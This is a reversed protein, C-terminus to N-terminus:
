VSLRRRLPNVDSEAELMKTMEATCIPKSFLYGQGYDCDQSALLALQEETEVGEAVVKLGLGHAMAIAANVLERDGPDVTIDNVFERDIKLVDFPFSRLYSLSSYGTGFDDMAISIGLESLATLADDIYTHGSMLVGETIELELCQGSLGSQCLADEIFSVLNPNRFQRPSLNVSMTILRGLKRQWFAVVSLAETLVFEGISVILGTHEAIPVFEIPAVDDLVPNQWRLLAEVGVIKRSALEVKPQYYLRFEGRNLAGYMQEELHLRRSVGQNMEDTFFFYTNRGQDKSHYMASDANRLLESPSDGDGPYIAIGISATLILERQDVRFPDRFHALLSEAVPRADVADAIGGLLVIFEDGGLRGVTDGQRVGGKLRLAAEQLLKDGTEHGLTDNVKKFDDLDLFLIAVKEQYRCADNILQSLRDLVLFRNPLDTLTDFHAQYLIHEEQKKRESVDEQILVIERVKGGECLLPYLFTRVWLQGSQGLLEPDNGKNYEYAPIEMAEGAFVRQILPMIGQKVLEKDQLMNYNELASFPVGWLQEWASNVRLIKGEPSVEQISLPSHEMLSRYKHESQQLASERANAELRLRINQLINSNIRYVGVGSVLIFLVILVGLVRFIESDESLFRIVLPIVSLVLFSIVALRSASLSTVAGAALGAFLVGQFAQHVEQGQPYLIWAGVGWLIGALLTGILFLKM